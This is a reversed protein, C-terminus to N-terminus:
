LSLAMALISLCGAASGSKRGFFRHLSFKGCLPAIFVGVPFIGLAFLYAMATCLDSSAHALVPMLIPIYLATALVEAGCDMAPRCFTIVLQAAMLMLGSCVLLYSINPLLVTLAAGLLAHLYAFARNLDRYSVGLWRSALYATLATTSLIVLGTVANAHGTSPYRFMCCGYAVGAALALSCVIVAAAWITRLIAHKNRNLLIHLATMIMLILALVMATTNSYVLPGASLYTFPIASQNVEHVRDLDLNALDEILLDMAANQDFVTNHRADLISLIMMLCFVAIFLGRILKIQKSM